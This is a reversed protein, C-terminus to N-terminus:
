KISRISGDKKIQDYWKLIEKDTAHKLSNRVKKELLEVTEKSFQGNDDDVAIDYEKKALVPALDIKRVGELIKREKSADVKGFIKKISSELYLEYAMDNTKTTM